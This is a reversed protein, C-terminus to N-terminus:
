LEENDKKPDAYSRGIDGARRGVIKYPIEKGRAKSFAKVLDLVSYGNEIGLNYTALGSKTELKELAKIHGKALDVVHIIELELEMMHIM